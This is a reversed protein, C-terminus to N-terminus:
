PFSAEPTFELSYGVGRHSRIIEHTRSTDGLKRRLRRICMRIASGEVYSSGWVTTALAQTSVVKGANKVLYTLLAWESNTLEVPRGDVQLRRGDPDIVLGGGSLVRRADWHGRMTARRLVAKIRALLETHSFPKVIYDDAGGELGRIRSIEDGQGSVIIVPVWSVQRLEHLAEIGPRDHLGLDL